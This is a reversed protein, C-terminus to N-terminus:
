SLYVWISMAVDAFTLSANYRLGALDDEYTDFIRAFSNGYSGAFMEVSARGYARVSLAHGKLGPPLDGGGPGFCAVDGKGYPQTYLCVADPPTPCHVTFTNAQHYKAMNRM